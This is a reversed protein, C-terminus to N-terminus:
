PGGCSSESEAPDRRETLLATGAGKETGTHCLCKLQYERKCGLYELVERDDLKTAISASLSLSNPRKRLHGKSENPRRERM